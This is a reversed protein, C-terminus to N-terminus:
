LLEELAAGPVASRSHTVMAMVSELVMVIFHIDTAESRRKTPATSTAAAINLSFKSALIACCSQPPIRCARDIRRSITAKSDTVPAANNVPM